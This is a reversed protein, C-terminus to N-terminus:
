FEQGLPAGTRLNWRGARGSLRTVTLPAVDLRWFAAPPLALAHLVAARIAAPEAVALVRAGDQEALRDLRRGVRACLATVSEGGPPAFGPDGLWSRVAEPEDAALEALARGRWAGADLDALAPEVAATLGLAQATQRCRRSPATLVATAGGAPATRARVPTLEAEDLPRDDGFRAERLEGGVAPAVLMVRVTM